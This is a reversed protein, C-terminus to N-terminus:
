ALTAIGIAALMPTWDLVWGVVLGPVM